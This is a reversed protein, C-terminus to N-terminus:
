LVLGIFTLFYIFNRYVMAMDLSRKNRKRFSSTGLIGAVTGGPVIAPAIVKAEDCDVIIRTGHEKPWAWKKRKRLPVQSYFILDIWSNNLISYCLILRTRQSPIGRTSGWGTAICLLNVVVDEAPLCISRVNCDFAHSENLRLLALDCENTEEDYGAHVVIEVVSSQRETGETEAQNHDGLVVRFQHVTGRGRSWGDAVDDDDDDDGYYHM